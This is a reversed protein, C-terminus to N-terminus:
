TSSETGAALLPRLRELWGSVLAPWSFHSEIHARGAAGMAAAEDPHDALHHIADVIPQPTEVDCVIGAGAETVIAAGEGAGSYIIPKASSMTAFLKAPRADRMVGIDRVTSLGALSGAYLEAVVDPPVQGVFTCNRVGAEVALDVIREKDSGEGVFLYGIDDDDMRAAAEIAVDLGHAYGHTGAYLVYRGPRVGVRDLVGLDVPRPGFLETDAGNQLMLVREPAVGFDEGLAGGVM